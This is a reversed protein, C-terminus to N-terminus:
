SKWYKAAPEGLKQVWTRRGKTFEVRDQYIRLVKVGRTLQDQYFVDGNIFVSPGDSDHMIADVVGIVPEEPEPPAQIQVMTQAVHERMLQEWYDVQRLSLERQQQLRAFDNQLDQMDKLLDDAVKDMATPVAIHYDALWVLMSTLEEPESSLLPDAPTCQARSQILGSLLTRDVRPLGCLSQKFNTLYTELRQNLSNLRAPYDAEILERQSSAVQQIVPLRQRQNDLRQQTAQQDETEAARCDCFMVAAAFLLVLASLYFLKKNKRM